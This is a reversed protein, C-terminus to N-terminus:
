SLSSRVQLKERYRDKQKGFPRLEGQAFELASASCEFVREVVRLFQKLGGESWCHVVVFFYIVRFLKENKQAIAFM